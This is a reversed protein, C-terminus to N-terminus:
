TYTDQLIHSREASGEIILTTRSHEAIDDATFSLIWGFQFLKLRIVIRRSVDM